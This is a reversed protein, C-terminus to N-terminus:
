IPVGVLCFLGGIAILYFIEAPTIPNTRCSERYEQNLRALMQSHRRMWVLPAAILEKITPSM